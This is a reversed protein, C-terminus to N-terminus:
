GKPGHPNIRDVPYPNLYDRQQNRQDRQQQQQQQAPANQNNDKDVCGASMAGILMVVALIILLKRIM